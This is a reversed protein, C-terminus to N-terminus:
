FSSGLYQVIIAGKRGPYAIITQNSGSAEEGTGAAGITCAVATGSVLDLIITKVDGPHGPAAVGWQGSENCKSGGSAGYGSGTDLGATGSSGYMSAGNYGNIGSSGKIHYSGSNYEHIATDSKGASGGSASIYSGFSTSGGAGGQATYKTSNVAGYSYGGGGGGICIIKWVGDKPCTWTKSSEITECYIM